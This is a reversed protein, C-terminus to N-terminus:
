KHKKIWYIFGIIAVFFILGLSIVRLNQEIALQNEGFWFGM